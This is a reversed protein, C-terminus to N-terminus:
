QLLVADFTVPSGLLFTAEIQTRELTEQSTPVIPWSEERAFWVLAWNEGVEIGSRIGMHGWFALQAFPLDVLDSVPDCVKGM